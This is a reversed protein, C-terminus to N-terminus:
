KKKNISSKLKDVLKKIKINKPELELVREWMKLALDFRRLMYYTSGMQKLADVNDPELRLVEEYLKVAEDYKKAKIKKMAWSLKQDALNWSKVVGEKDLDIGSINEIDEIAEDIVPEESISYAYVLYDLAKGYEGEMYRDLGNKISRKLLPEKETGIHIVKNVISVKKYLREMDKNSKGGVNMAEELLKEAKVYNKTKISNLAKKYNKTKVNVNKRKNEGFRYGLGLRHTGYIGKIGGIPYWFGYDIYIRKGEYGIGANIRMYKSSGVGMGGRLALNWVWSEVGILIKNEGDKLEVELGGITDKLRGGLGVRIGMPVKNEYKLGLDPKNIDKLALGISLIRNLKYIGGVDIGLGNTKLGEDFVENIDTYDTQGYELWMLNIGVGINISKNLKIGFATNIEGERYLESISFQRIGVGIGMWDMLKYTMAAKGNSIPYKSDLGVHRRGYDGYVEGEFLDALGGPNIYLSGVDGGLGVDIEGMGISRVTGERVMLSSNAETIILLLPLIAALILKYLKIKM